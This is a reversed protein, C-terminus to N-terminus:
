PATRGAAPLDVVVAAPLTPVTSGRSPESTVIVRRTGDLPPLHIATDGTAGVSFLARTPVAASPQRELWAQYIRGEGPPGVDSLVLTTEDGRVVIAADAGPGGAAPAVTGAITRSAPRRDEPSALLGGLVTGGIVLSVAAVALLAGRLLRRSPLPTTVADPEQASAARFLEAERRVAAMLRASLGPPPTVLPVADAMADAAERLSAVEGQCTVCVTLHAAFRKAEDPTLTGLVWGAALHTHDCEDGPNM